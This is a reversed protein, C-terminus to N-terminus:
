EAAPTDPDVDLAAGLGASSAAEEIEARRLWEWQELADRGGSESRVVHRLRMRPQTLCDTLLEARLREFTVRDRCVAECRQVSVEVARTAAEKEAVIDETVTHMVAVFHDSFAQAEVKGRAMVNTLEERQQAEVLTVRHRELAEFVQLM